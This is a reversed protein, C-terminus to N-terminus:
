LGIPPLIRLSAGANTTVDIMAIALVDANAIPSMFFFSLLWFPVAVLPWLEVPEEDDVPLVYPLPLLEVDPLPDDSLPEPALPVLPLAPSLPALLEIPVLLPLM